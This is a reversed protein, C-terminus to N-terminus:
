TFSRRSFSCALLLGPGLPLLFTPEVEADETSFVGPRPRLRTIFSSLEDVGELVGLRLLFTFTCMLGAEILGSKGAKLLNKNTQPKKAKIM